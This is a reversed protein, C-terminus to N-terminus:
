AQRGNRLRTVLGPAERGLLKRHETVDSEAHVPPASRCDVEQVRRTSADGLQTSNLQFAHRVRM